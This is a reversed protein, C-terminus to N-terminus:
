SIIYIDGEEKKALAKCLLKAATRNPVSEDKDARMKLAHTKVLVSFAQIRMNIAVNTDDDDDVGDTGDAAAARGSGRFVVDIDDVAAAARGSYRFAADTGDAAADFEGPSM